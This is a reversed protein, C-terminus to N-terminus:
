PRVTQSFTIHLQGATTWVDTVGGEVPVGSLDVVFTDGGLSSLLADTFQRPINVGEISITNIKFALEREGSQLFGGTLSVGLKRGGLLLDGTVTIGGTSISVRGNGLIPINESVHRDLAAESLSLTTSVSGEIMELRGQTVLSVPNLRVDVLQSVIRDVFLVGTDLGEIEVRILDFQGRLMKLAPRSRVSVRTVDADNFRAAVVKAAIQELGRPLVIEAVLMIVLALILSSLLFRKM